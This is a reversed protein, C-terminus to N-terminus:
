NYLETNGARGIIALDWRDAPVSAGSLRVVTPFLDMNSTPEDVEIGDPIKEPWRLIGPM